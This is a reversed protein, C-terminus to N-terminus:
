SFVQKPQRVAVSLKNNEHPGVYECTPEQHIMAVTTKEIEIKEDKYYGKSTGSTSVHALCTGEELQDISDWGSEEELMEQQLWPVNNATKTNLKQKKKLPETRWKLWDLAKTNASRGAGRKRKPLRMKAGFLKQKSPAQSSAPMNLPKKTKASSSQDSGSNKPSAPLENDSEDASEPATSHQNNGSSDPYALSEDSSDSSLTKSTSSPEDIDSTELSTEM